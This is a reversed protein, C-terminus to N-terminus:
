PVAAAPRIPNNPAPRLDGLWEARCAGGEPLTVRRLARSLETICQAARWFIIRVINGIDSPLHVLDEPGFGAAAGPYCVFDLCDDESCRHECDNSGVRM